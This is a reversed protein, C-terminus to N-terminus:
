ANKILMLMERCTLNANFNSFGTFVQSNFCFLTFVCVKLYPIGLGRTGVWKKLTLVNKRHHKNKIKCEVGIWIFNEPYVAPFEVSKRSGPFFVKAKDPDRFFSKPMVQWKFNQKRWPNRGTSWLYKTALHFTPYLFFCSACVCKKEYKMACLLLEYYVESTGRGGGGAAKAQLGRDDAEDANNGCDDVTDCVWEGPICNRIAQFFPYHGKKWSLYLPYFPM